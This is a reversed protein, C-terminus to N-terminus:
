CSSEGEGWFLFYLVGRTKCSVIMVKRPHRSPAGVFMSYLIQSPWGNPNGVEAAVDVARNSNAAYLVCGRAKTTSFGVMERHELVPLRTETNFINWYVIDVSISLIYIYTYCYSGLYLFIHWSISICVFTSCDHEYCSDRICFFVLKLSPHVKQAWTWRVWYSALISDDFWCSSRCQPRFRAKLM